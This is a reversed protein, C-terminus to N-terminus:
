RVLGISTTTTASNSAETTGLKLLYTGPVLQTQVGTGPQVQANAGEVAGFQQGVEQAPDIEHHRVEPVVAEMQHEGEKDQGIM